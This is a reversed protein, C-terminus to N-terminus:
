PKCQWLEWKSTPGFYICIILFNVYNPVTQWYVSVLIRVTVGEMEWVKSHYKGNFQIFIGERKKRKDVTKCLHLPNTATQNRNRCAVPM